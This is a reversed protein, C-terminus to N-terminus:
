APGLLQGPCAAATGGRRGAEATGSRLCGCRLAPRAGHDQEVQLSSGPRMPPRHEAGAQGRAVGLQQAHRLYTGSVVVNDTAAAPTESAVRRANRLYACCADADVRRRAARRPHTPTALLPADQQVRHQQRREARQEASVVPLTWVLRCGRGTIVTSLGRGVRQPSRARRRCWRACRMRWSVVAM